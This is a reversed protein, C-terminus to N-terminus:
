WSSLLEVLTSMGDPHRKEHNRDYDRSSSLKSKTSKNSRMSSYLEQYGNAQDPIDAAAKLSPVPSATPGGGGGPSGPPPPHDKNNDLPM